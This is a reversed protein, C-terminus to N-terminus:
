RSSRRRSGRGIGPSRSRSSRSTHPWSRSHSGGAFPPRGALLEYALVGVAYIDVRHDLHPDAAAQEPAM